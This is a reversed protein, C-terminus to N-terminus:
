RGGVVRPSPVPKGPASKARGQAIGATVPPAARTAPMRTAHMAGSALPWPVSAAMAATCWLGVPRRSRAASTLTTAEESIMPDPPDPPRSPGVAWILAVTIERRHPARRMGRGSARMATAAAM